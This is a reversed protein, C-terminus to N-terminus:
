DRCLNTSTAIIHSKQLILSAKKLDTVLHLHIKKTSQPKTKYNIDQHNYFYYAYALNELVVEESLKQESAVFTSLHLSIKYDKITVLEPLFSLFTELKYLKKKGLCYYLKKEESILTFGSETLLPSSFKANLKKLDESFFGVLDLSNLSKKNSSTLIFQKKKM